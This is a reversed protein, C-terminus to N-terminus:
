TGSQKLWIVQTTKTRRKGDSCDILARGASSWKPKSKVTIVKKKPDSPLYFRDGIELRELNIKEREM